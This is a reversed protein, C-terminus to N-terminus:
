RSYGQLVRKCYWHSVGFERALLKVLARRVTETSYIQRMVRVDDPSLKM